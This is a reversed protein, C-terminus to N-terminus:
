ESDARVYGTCKKGIDYETNMRMNPMICGNDDLTLALMQLYDIVGVPKVGMEKIYREVEDIVTDAIIDANSPYVIMM